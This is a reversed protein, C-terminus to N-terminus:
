PVQDLGSGYTPRPGSGNKWGASRMRRETGDSRVAFPGSRRSRTVLKHVKWKTGTAATDLDDLLALGVYPSREPEAM